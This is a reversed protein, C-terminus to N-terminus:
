GFGEGVLKGLLVEPQEIVFAIERPAQDVVRPVGVPHLARRELADEVSQRMGAIGGEQHCTGEPDAAQPKSAQAPLMEEREKEDVVEPQKKENVRSRAEQHREKGYKDEEGPSGGVGPLVPMRVFRMGAKGHGGHAECQACSEREQQPDGCKLRRKWGPDAAM